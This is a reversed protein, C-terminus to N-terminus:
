IEVEYPWDLIGGLDYVRAYGLADLTRAAIASRRGTRCYILYTATPDPLVKEARRAVDGLPLLRAGPIHGAAFEDPERVDVAVAEGATLLRVAERPSIKENM